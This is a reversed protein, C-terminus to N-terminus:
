CRTRGKLLVMKNLTRPVSFNHDIGNEFCVNEFHTKLNETTIVEFSLFLLDNENQIKRTLKKSLKFLKMRILLFSFRTFRDFDAIIVFGNHKGGFSTTRTSGFLDINFLQFPRSTFVINKSKFSSRTQKDM